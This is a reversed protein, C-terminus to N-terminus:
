QRGQAKTRAALDGVLADVRDVILKRASEYSRSIPPVPDDWRLLKDSVPRASARLKCAFTVVRLAGRVDDGTIAAPKWEGANLGDAALGGVVEPPIKEDPQVGRSVAEYPLGREAALRNFHAAAIVSKASGHECVFVVRQKSPKTVPPEQAVGHSGVAILGFLLGAMTGTSNM